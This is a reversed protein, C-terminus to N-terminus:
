NELTKKCIEVTIQPFWEMSLISDKETYKIGPVLHEDTCVNIVVITTMPKLNHSDWIDVGSNNNEMPPQEINECSFRLEYILM